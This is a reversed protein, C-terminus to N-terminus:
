CQSLSFPPPFYHKILHLVTTSSDAWSWLNLPEFASVVPVLLSFQADHFLTKDALCRLVTTTCNAWSWFNSPKFGAVVPLPFSCTADHFVTKDGLLHLVTTCCDAWSQLNLPEFGAVVPLPFPFIQMMLCLRTQWFGYCLPLVIREHDYTWPNSDLWWLCMYLFNHM